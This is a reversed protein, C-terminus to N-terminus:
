SIRDSLNRASRRRAFNMRSLIKVARTSDPLSRRGLTPPDDVIKISIVLKLLPADNAIEQGAHGVSIAFFEVLAQKAKISGRNVFRLPIGSNSRVDRGRSVNLAVARRDPEGGKASRGIRGRTQASSGLMPTKTDIAPIM